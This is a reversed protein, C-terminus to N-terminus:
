DTQGIVRAPIGGVVVGPGFSRTVVAGAAVVSRSQLTVGALIRCGCGVWVDAQIQVAAYRTPNYKIPLTADAWSHNSSLISTGHAIAVNDGLEIGGAADLYCWRHISVNDGIALHELFKLEVDRDIFVNDGCSKLLTKLLCYRLALGIPGRSGEVRHWLGLRSSRPWLGLVAVLVKLAGQHRTFRQSPLLNTAGNM